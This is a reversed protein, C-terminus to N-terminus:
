HAQSLRCPWMLRNPKLISCPWMLRNLAVYFLHRVPAMSRGPSALSIVVQQAARAEAAKVGALGHM